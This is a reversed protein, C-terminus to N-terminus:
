LSIKLNNIKRLKEFFKQQEVYMETSSSKQVPAIYYKIEVLEYKESLKKCLKEINIKSNFKKKVSFYM